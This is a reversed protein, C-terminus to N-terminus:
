EPQKPKGTLNLWSRFENGNPQKTSDNGAPDEGEGGEQEQEPEKPKGILKLWSRFENVNPQQYLTKRVDRLKCLDENLKEMDLSDVDEAKSMLWAYVVAASRGHGARCHVYVRGMDEKNEHHQRIFEVATKLDEVSPEFHDTTPLCLERIGLKQYQKTPGKYEECLNIVSRVGYKDHLKKPVNLWGIPAGGMIVTDDVQTSWKGLRKSVTIPLTPWFLTKSVVSSLGRPLMHQQNLIYLAVITGLAFKTAIQALHPVGMALSSPIGEAKIGKKGTGSASPVKKSTKTTTSSSRRTGYFYDFEEENGNEENDEGETDPHKKDDPPLNTSDDGRATTAPVADIEETEDEVSKIPPIKSIISEIPSKTM